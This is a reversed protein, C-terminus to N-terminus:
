GEKGGVIAALEVIGDELEMIRQLLPDVPEPEPTPEPPEVPTIATVVGDSATIEAFPACAEWAELLEEPVVAWGAPLEIGGTCIQNRHAGNALAAIEIITM